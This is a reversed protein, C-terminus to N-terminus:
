EYLSVSEGRNFDKMRITGTVEWVRLFAKQRKLCFNRKTSVMEATKLIQTESLITLEVMRFPIWCVGEFVM